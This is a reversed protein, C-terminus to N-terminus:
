VRETFFSNSFGDVVPIGSKVCHNIMNVTGGKKNHNFAVVIDAREAMKVNRLQYGKMSFTQSHTFVQSAKTLLDMYLDQTADDWKKCQIYAPFPLHAEFPIGHDAAYKAVALDTGYAMGTIWRTNPYHRHVDKLQSELRDFGFNRNGTFTIIRVHDSPTSSSKVEDELVTVHYLWGNRADFKTIMEWWQELTKFGSLPVYDNLGDMSVVPRIKEVMCSGVNNVETVTFRSKTEYKRVTYVQECEVLCKKVVAVDFKM